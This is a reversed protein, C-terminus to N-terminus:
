VGLVAAFYGNFNVVAWVTKTAADIGYTGLADCPLLPRTV